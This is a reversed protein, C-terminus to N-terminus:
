KKRQYIKTQHGVTFQVTDGQLVFMSSESETEGDAITIFQNGLIKYTGEIEYVFPEEDPSYIKITKKVRGDKLTYEEITIGSQMNSRIESLTEEDLEDNKIDVLIWDGEIGSTGSQNGSSSQDDKSCATLLLLFAFMLSLLKSVNKMEYGEKMCLYGTYIYNEISLM